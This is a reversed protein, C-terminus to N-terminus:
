LEVPRKGLGQALADSVAVPEPPRAPFDMAFLDGDRRVTLEGSRTQFRVVDRQPELYSMVVFAAALTAHGCLDVEVAPTMWRLGYCDGQPVLFATEALNNEAAIAQMTADELWHDLPCVAAPNGSFLSGTFADIQYIPIKM